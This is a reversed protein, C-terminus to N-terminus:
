DAEVEEAAMMFIFPNMVQNLTRYIQERGALKWITQHLKMGSQLFQEDDRKTAAEKMKSLRERLLREDNPGMEERM